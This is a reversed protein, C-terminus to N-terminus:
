VGIGNIGSYKWLTGCCVAYLYDSGNNSWLAGCSLCGFLGFCISGSCCWIAGRPMRGYMNRIYGWCGNRLARCYLGYLGFCRHAVM